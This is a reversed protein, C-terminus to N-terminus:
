LYKEVNAIAAQIYQSSSFSWYVVENELTVKSVKNELYIKPPGISSEKLNWYKGIEKRIIQEPNESVVLCDDNYLCIYEWYPTGDDTM